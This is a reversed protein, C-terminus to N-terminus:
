HYLDYNSDLGDIIKEARVGTNNSLLNMYLTLLSLAQSLGLMQVIYM